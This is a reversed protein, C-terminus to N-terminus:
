RGDWCGKCLVLKEGISLAFSNVVSPNLGCKFCLNNRKRFSIILNYEEICSDCLYGFSTEPNLDNSFCEEGCYKCRAMETIGRVKEIEDM